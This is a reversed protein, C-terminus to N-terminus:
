GATASQAEGVEIESVGMVERAAEKSIFLALSLHSEDAIKFIEGIPKTWGTYDVGAELSPGNGRFIQVYGAARHVLVMNKDALIPDAFHVFRDGELNSFSTVAEVPTSNVIAAIYAMDSRTYPFVTTPTAATFVLNFFQISQEMPGSNKLQFNTAQAREVDYNEPYAHHLHILGQRVKLLEMGKQFVYAKAQNAPSVIMPQSQEALNLTVSERKGEAMFSVKDGILTVNVGPGIPFILVRVGDIETSRPESTRYKITLASSMTVNTVCRGLDHVKDFFRQEPSQEAEVPAPTEATVGANDEVSASDDPRQVETTDGSNSDAPAEAVPAAPTETTEASRIDDNVDKKTEAEPATAKDKKIYRYVGYAGLCVLAIGAGYVGIRGLRSINNLQFNM